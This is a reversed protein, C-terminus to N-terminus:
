TASRKAAIALCQASRYLARDGFMTCNELRLRAFQKPTVGCLAEAEARTILVPPANDKKDM